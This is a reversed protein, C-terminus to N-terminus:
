PLWGLVAALSLIVQAVFLVSVVTLITVHSKTLKQMREVSKTIVASGVMAVAALM